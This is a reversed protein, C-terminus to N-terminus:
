LDTGKEVSIKLDERWGDLLEDLYEIREQAKEYARKANSKVAETAYAVQKGREAKLFRKITLYKEMRSIEIRDNQMTSQLTIDDHDAWFYSGINEEDKIYYVPDCSETNRSVNEISGCRHATIKYGGIKGDAKINQVKNVLVKDGILFDNEEMKKEM